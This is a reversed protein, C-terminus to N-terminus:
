VLLLYFNHFRISHSFTDLLTCYLQSLRVDEDPLYLGHVRSAKETVPDRAVMIFQTDGVKVETGDPNVSIM